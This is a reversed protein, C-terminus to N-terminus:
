KCMRGKPNDQPGQTNDIKAKIYDTRIAPDQAAVFLAETERKLECQKRERTKTRDQLNVM